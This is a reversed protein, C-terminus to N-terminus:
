CNRRFFRFEDFVQQILESLRLFRRRYFFALFFHREFLSRGYLKDLLFSSVPRGPFEAM